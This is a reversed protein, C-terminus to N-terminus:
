STCSPRKSATTSMSTPIVPPQLGGQAASQAQMQRKTTEQRNSVFVIRGDPLYAPETDDGAFAADCTIRRTAKGM